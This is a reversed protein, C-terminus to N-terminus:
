KRDKALKMIELKVGQKQKDSLFDVMEELSSALPQGEVTTYSKGRQIIAGLRVWEGILVKEKYTKDQVQKLFYDPNKEIAEGVQGELADPSLHRPDQGQAFLYDSYNTTTWDQIFQYAKKKSSISTYKEKVVDEEKILVYEAQPNALYAAMGVEVKEMQSAVKYQFFDIPNSLDLTIPKGVPLTIRARNDLYYCEKVKEPNTLDPVISSLQGEKLGLLPELGREEEPTLGTAFHGRKSGSMAAQTFNPRTNPFSKIKVDVGGGGATKVQVPSTSSKM